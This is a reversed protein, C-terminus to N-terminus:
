QRNDPGGEHTSPETLPEGSELVAAITEPPILQALAALSEMVQQWNEPGSLREIAELIRYTAARIAAVLAIVADHGHIRVMHADWARARAVWNWARCERSWQGPVHMKAGAPPEGGHEGAFARCAALLSRGPGLHCYYLFHLYAPEPEGDQRDWLHNTDITEKRQESSETVGAQRRANRRRRTPTDVALPM